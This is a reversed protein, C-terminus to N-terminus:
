CMLNIMLFFLFYIFSLGPLVNNEKAELFLFFFFPSKQEIVNVAGGGM